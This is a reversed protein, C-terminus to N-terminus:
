PNPFASNNSRKSIKKAPLGAWIEWDPISTKLLSLAGLIAGEGINAGPLLVSNTGVFGNKGVRVPKTIFSRYKEPIMPGSMHLGPIPLESSSYLRVGAAIGAYDEITIPSRSSLITQSGIHVRRGISVEGLLSEIRVGSDVWCYDGIQINRPGYFVVGVDIICKKGLKKLRLKYYLRRIVFGLSGPINRILGEFLDSVLGVLLAFFMGFKLRDDILYAQFAQFRLSYLSKM